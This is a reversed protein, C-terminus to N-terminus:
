VSSESTSFTDHMVRKEDTVNPVVAFQICRFRLPRMTVPIKASLGGPYRRGPVGNENPKLMGTTTPRDLPLAIQFIFVRKPGKRTFAAHTTDAPNASRPIAPRRKRDEQVSATARVGSPKCPATPPHPPPRAYLLRVFPISRRRRGVTTVSTKTYDM